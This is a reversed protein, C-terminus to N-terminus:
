KFVNENLDCSERARMSTKPSCEARRTSSQPLAGKFWLESSERELGCVSDRTSRCVHRVVGFLGIRFLQYTENSREAYGPMADRKRERRATSREHSFRFGCVVSQSVSKKRSSSLVRGVRRRHHRCFENLLVQVFVLLEDQRNQFVLVHALEGLARLVLGLQLLIEHIERRDRVRLWGLTRATLLRQPNYYMLNNKSSLEFPARM